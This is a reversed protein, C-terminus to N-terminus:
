RCRARPTRRSFGTSFFVVDREDGQVNELNKVFLGEGDTRDLAQPWGTTTPTACCRRSTPAAAPRQVHRCRDVAAVDRRCRRVAPPDGRRDGEGRDPQHAAAARRGLPPVHGAGAGALRRPRGAGVVAARADAGPVVVAPERLVARQQVRDAVRGPQPLAVVAVAAAGAGARVRHPDVGRGRGDIEPSTAPRTAAPPRSPSRRRRCRSATASSSPPARRPGARRGRRGGPDAVGRRVRGPRVPGAVAPFFRAVSDPSVLVCPM